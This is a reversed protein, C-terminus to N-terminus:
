SRSRPSPDALAPAPPAPPATPDVPPDVTPIGPPLSPPTPVTPDPRNARVRAIGPRGGCSLVAAAAAFAKVVRGM